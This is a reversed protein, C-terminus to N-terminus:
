KNSCAFGVRFCIGHYCGKELHPLLATQRTLIKCASHQTIQKYTMRLINPFRMSKQRYISCFLPSCFLLSLLLHYTHELNPVIRMALRICRINIIQNETILLRLAFLLFSLRPFDNMPFILSKKTKHSLFSWAASNFQM